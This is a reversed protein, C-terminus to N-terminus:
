CNKIIPMYNMMLRCHKFGEIFANYAIFIREFRNTSPDTELVVVSGSNTWQIGDSYWRLEDFSNDYNGFLSARAVEAGQWVKKYEIDFGWNHLLDFQM